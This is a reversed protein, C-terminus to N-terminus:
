PERVASRPLLVVRTVFTLTADGVRGTVEWCGTTPFTLSTAQFGRDGYGDPINARLPPAPADLRRGNITLRGPVGRQWGFKMSLSGDPNIFGAGGPRFAVTGDPWLGFPGLSLRPNGYSHQRDTNDDGAVVGNPATVPCDAPAVAPTASPPEQQAYGRLLNVAVALSAGLVGARIRM